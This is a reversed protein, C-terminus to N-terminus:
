LQLHCCWLNSWRRLWHLHKFARGRWCVTFLTHLWEWLRTQLDTIRTWRCWMYLSSRCVSYDYMDLCPKCSHQWCFLMLRSFKPSMSIQLWIVEMSLLCNTGKSRTMITQIAEANLGIPGWGLGFQKRLIEWNKKSQFAQFNPQRWAQSNM